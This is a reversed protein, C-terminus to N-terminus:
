LVAPATNCQTANEEITAASVPRARAIVGNSPIYAHRTLFRAVRCHYEEGVEYVTENHRAESIVWLRPRNRMQKRLSCVTELPTMADRGGHILLVPKRIRRAARDVRLIRCHRQRQIICNAWFALMSLTWDPLMALQPCAPVHLHMFRRILYLQVRETPCISDLVVSQVRSDAEAVCLAATAGRSLGFLVVRGALTKKRRCCFDIAAQVDAVEDFTAWPLLGDGGTKQSEGHDRFDFALVDFGEKRLGSTYALATAQSGRLEHCFVVVGKREDAIAPLYTGALRVGDTTDFFVKEADFISEPYDDLMMAPRRSPFWPMEAFARAVVPAYVAWLSFISLAVLGILTAVMWLFTVM